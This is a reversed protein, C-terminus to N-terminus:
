KNKILYEVTDVFKTFPKAKEEGNMEIAKKKFDEPSTTKYCSFVLQLDDGTLWYAMALKEVTGNLEICYREPNSKYGTCDSCYTCDLCDSCYSCDTCESCETCDFCDSCETCRTCYNCYSCYSCDTCLTCDILTESYKKAREETFIDCNWRNNNADIWYGSIKKM